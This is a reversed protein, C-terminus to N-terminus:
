WVMEPLIADIEASTKPVAIDGAILKNLYDYLAVLTRDRIDVCKDADAKFASISSTAYSCASGIGNYRKIAAFADLKREVYKDSMEIVIEAIDPDVESYLLPPVPAGPEVSSVKDRYLWTLVEDLTHPVYTYSAFVKDDVIKLTEKVSHFLKPELRPEFVVRTYFNFPHARNRISAALIPYEIIETKDDSLKAFITTDPYSESM